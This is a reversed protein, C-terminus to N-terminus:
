TFPLLNNYRLLQQVSGCLPILYDPVAYPDLVYSYVTGRSLTCHPRLGVARRSCGPGLPSAPPTEAGLSFGASLCRTCRPALVVAGAVLPREQEINRRWARQAPPRASHRCSKSDGDRSGQKPSARQTERMRRHGPLSLALRPNQQNAASPSAHLCASVRIHRNLKFSQATQAPSANLM